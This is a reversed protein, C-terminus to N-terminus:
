GVVFIAFSVLRWRETKLVTTASRQHSLTEAKSSALPLAQDVQMMIAVRHIRFCAVVLQVGREVITLEDRAVAPTAADGRPSRHKRSPVRQNLDIARGNKAIGTQQHSAQTQRNDCGDVVSHQELHGLIADLELLRARDPTEFPCRAPKQVAERQPDVGLDNAFALTEDIQAAFLGPGKDFARQLFQFLSHVIDGSRSSSM